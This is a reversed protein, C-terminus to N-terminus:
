ETASEVVVLEAITAGEAILTFSDRQYLLADIRTQEPGVIHSNMLVGSAWLTKRPRVVGVHGAPIDPTEAFTVVYTADEDLRYFRETSHPTMGLRHLIMDADEQGMREFEQRKHPEVDTREQRYVGETGVVAEGRHRELRAVSLGLTRRAASGPRPIMDQVYNGSRVVM